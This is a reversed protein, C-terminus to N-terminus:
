LFIRRQVSCDLPRTDNDGNRDQGPQMMLVDPYLKRFPCPQMVLIDPNLKRCACTIRPIAHSSAPAPASQSKMLILLSFATSLLLVPATQARTELM